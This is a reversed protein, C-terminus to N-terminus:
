AEDAPLPTHVTADQISFPRGVKVEFGADTLAEYLWTNDQSNPEEVLQPGIFCTLIGGLTYNAEGSLRNVAEFGYTVYPAAMDNTIPSNFGPGIGRDVSVCRFHNQWGVTLEAGEVFHHVEEGPRFVRKAHWRRWSVRRRRKAPTSSRVAMTISYEVIM